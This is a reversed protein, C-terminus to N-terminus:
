FLICCFPTETPDGTSICCETPAPCDYTIGFDTCSSNDEKNRRIMGRPRAVSKDLKQEQAYCMGAIAAVIVVLTAHM